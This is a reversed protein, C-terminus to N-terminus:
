QAKYLDVEMTQNDKDDQVINNNNNNDNNDNNHRTFILWPKWQKIMETM